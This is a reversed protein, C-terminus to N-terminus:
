VVGEQGKEDKKEKRDENDPQGKKAPAPEVAPAAKLNSEEWPGDDKSESSSGLSDYDAEDDDDRTDRGHGEHDRGDGAPGPLWSTATILQAWTLSNNLRRPQCNFQATIGKPYTKLM